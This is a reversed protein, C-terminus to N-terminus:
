FFSPFFLFFFITRSKALAAAVHLPRRSCLGFHFNTMASKRPLPLTSRHERGVPRGVLNALWRVALAAFLRRIRDGGVLSGTMTINRTWAM